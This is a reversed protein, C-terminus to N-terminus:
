RKQASTFQDSLMKLLWTNQFTVNNVSKVYREVVEYGLSELLPAALLSADAWLQFMSDACAREEVVTVLAKGVGMRHHDPSVHLLDLEGGGEGRPILNAFGIIVNNEVAVFSSTEEIIMAFDRSSLSQRWTEIQEASYTDSTADVSSLVVERADLCDSADASRVIM